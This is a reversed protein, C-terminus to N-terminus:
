ENTFYARGLERAVEVLQYVIAEQPIRFVSSISFRTVVSAGDHRPTVSVRGEEQVAIEINAKGSFVREAIGSIIEVARREEDYILRIM